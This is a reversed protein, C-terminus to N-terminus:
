GKTLLLIGTLGDSLYLNALAPLFVQYLGSGVYQLNLTALSFRHIKPPPTQLGPGSFIDALLQPSRVNFCISAM